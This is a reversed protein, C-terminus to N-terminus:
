PKTQCFEVLEVNVLLLEVGYVNVRHDLEVFDLNVLITSKFVVNAM